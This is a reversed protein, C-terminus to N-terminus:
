SLIKISALLYFVMQQFYIDIVPSHLSNLAYPYSIKALHLM